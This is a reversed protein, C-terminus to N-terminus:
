LSSNIQQQAITVHDKLKRSHHEEVKTNDHFNNLYLCRKRGEGNDDWEKGKDTGGGSTTIQQTM